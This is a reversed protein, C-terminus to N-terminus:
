FSMRVIKPFKASFTSEEHLQISHLDRKVNEKFLYAILNSIGSFLLFHRLFDGIWNFPRSM